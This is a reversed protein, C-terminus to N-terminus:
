KEVFSKVGAVTLPAGSPTPIMGELWKVYEVNEKYESYTTVFNAMSEDIGRDKLYQDVHQQLDEELTNFAPGTYLSSNKKEQELSNPPALKSDAFYDVNVVYVTSDEIGVDFVLAGPASAKTVTVTMSHHTQNQKADYDADTEEGNEGLQKEGGEAEPDEMDEFDEEGYSVESINFSV